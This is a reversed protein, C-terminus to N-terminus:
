FTKVITRGFIKQFLHSLVVPGWRCIELWKAFCLVMTMDNKIERQRELAEDGYDFCLEDGSIVASATFFTLQGQSLVRRSLQM